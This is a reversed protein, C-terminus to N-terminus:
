ALPVGRDDLARMLLLNWPGGLVKQLLDMFCICFQTGHAGTPDVIDTTFYHALEHLIVFETMAWSSWVGKHDPVAIENPLSAYHAKADGQRARVTPVPRNVPWRETVSPMALVADVFAQVGEINGFKRPPVLPLKQGFFEIEEVGSKAIWRLEFEADYTKSKYSDRAM